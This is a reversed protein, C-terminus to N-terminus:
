RELGVMTKLCKLFVPRLEEPIPEIIRAEVEADRAMVQEILRLGAETIHLEYARADAENGFKATVGYGTIEKTFPDLLPAVEFQTGTKAEEKSFPSIQFAGTTPNHIVHDKVEVQCM